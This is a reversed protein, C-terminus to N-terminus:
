LTTSPSRFRNALDILQVFQQDILQEIAPDQLRGRPDFHSQSRALMIKLKNLPIMNLFTM